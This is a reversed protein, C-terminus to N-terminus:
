LIIKFFPNLRDRISLMLYLYVENTKLVSLGIKCIYISLFIIYNKLTIMTSAIKIKQQLSRAFMIIYTTKIVNIFSM